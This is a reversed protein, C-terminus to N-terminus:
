TRHDVLLFLRLIRSIRGSRMESRLCVCLQKHDLTWVSGRGPQYFTLVPISCPNRSLVWLPTPKKETKKLQALLFLFGM